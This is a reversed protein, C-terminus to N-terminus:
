GILDTDFAFEDFVDLVLESCVKCVAAVNVFKLDFLFGFDNENKM